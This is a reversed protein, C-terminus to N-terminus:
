SMNRFYSIQDIVDIDCYHALFIFEQRNDSTRTHDRFKYVIIIDTSMSILMWPYELWELRDHIAGLVRKIIYRATVKKSEKAKTPFINFIVASKEWLVVTYSTEQVLKGAVVSRTPGLLSSIISPQICVISDWGVLTFCSAVVTLTGPGTGGQM